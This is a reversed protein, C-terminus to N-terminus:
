LRITHNSEDSDESETRSEIEESLYDALDPGDQETTGSYSQVLRRFKENKALEDAIPDSEKGQRDWVLFRSEREQKLEVIFYPIYFLNGELVELKDLDTRAPLRLGDAFIKWRTERTKKLHDINDKLDDRRHDTKELSDHQSSLEILRQDYEFLTKRLEDLMESVLVTSDVGPIISSPLSEVDTLQSVLSILEPAFGFSAERLAMLVSRGHGVVSQKSLFGKEASYRYAFDLYPLNLTRGFIMREESDDLIGRKERKREAARLLVSESVLMPLVKM